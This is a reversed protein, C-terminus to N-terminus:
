LRTSIGPVLTMPLGFSVLNDVVFQYGFHKILAELSETSFSSAEYAEFDLRPDCGLIEIGKECANEIQKKSLNVKVFYKDFQNHGPRDRYPDGVTVTIFQNNKKTM